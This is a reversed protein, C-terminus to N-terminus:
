GDVRGRFSRALPAPSGPAPHAMRETAQELREVAGLLRSALEGILESSTSDLGAEPGPSSRAAGLSPQRDPAAFADPSFDLTEGTPWASRNRSVTPTIPRDAPSSIPGTAADGLGAFLDAHLSYPEAGVLSHSNDPGPAFPDPDEKASARPLLPVGHAVWEAQSSQATTIDAAGQEEAQSRALAPPDLCLAAADAAKGPALPQFAEALSELPLLLSSAATIPKSEPKV